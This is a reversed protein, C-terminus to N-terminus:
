NYINDNTNMHTTPKFFYIIYHKAVCHRHVRYLESSHEYLINVRM